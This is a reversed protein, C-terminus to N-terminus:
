EETTDGKPNSMSTYKHKLEDFNHEAWVKLECACWVKIVVTITDFDANTALVDFNLFVRTGHPLAESNHLLSRM